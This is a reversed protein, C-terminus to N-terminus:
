AAKTVIGLMCESGIIIVHLLDYCAASKLMISGTYIIAGDALVV